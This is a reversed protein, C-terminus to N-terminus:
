PALGGTAHKLAAQALLIDAEAAIRRATTHTLKSQAELVDSHRTMGHKLLDTAVDLNRRAGTEAHRTTELRKLAHHLTMHATRVQSVVSEEAAQLLLAERTARAQAEGTRGRTLGGDFLTWTVVAGIVADDRWQDDPPFDRPNPRGQEYRAVLALQPRSEARAAEVLAAGARASLRLAVLDARNSFSQRLCEELPIVTLNGPKLVPQQPTETEGWDRGTLRSLEIRNLEAQQNADDLQLQTQDLSVEVALRDNDTALGAKELNVTDAALAKMRTVAMQLAESQELAKSWSWYAMLTQLTMDAVSSTLSQRTAEEGLRASLKQQTARGGTYLPQTIGVSATFQNDIVPISVPGLAQNELGEFHFAQARADLQPRLGSEAQLRRSAAALLDQDHSKLSPSHALALKVADDPTLVATDAPLCSWLCCVVSLLSLNMKM